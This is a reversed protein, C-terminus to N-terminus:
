AGFSMKMEDALRYGGLTARRREVRRADADYGVPMDAFKTIELDLNQYPTNLSAQVSEEAWDRTNFKMREEGFTERPYEKVLEDASKEITFPDQHTGLLEDWYAHLNGSSAGRKGRPEARSGRQRRSGWESAGELVECPM